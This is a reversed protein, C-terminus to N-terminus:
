AVADRGKPRGTGEKGEPGGVVVTSGWGTKGRSKKKKSQSVVVPVRVAGGKKRAFHMEFDRGVLQTEGVGWRKGQGSKGATKIPVVEVNKKRGGVNL